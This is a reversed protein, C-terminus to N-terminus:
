SGLIIGADPPSFHIKVADLVAEGVKIRDDALRRVLMKHTALDDPNM